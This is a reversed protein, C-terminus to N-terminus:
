FNFRGGIGVPLHMWFPAPVIEVYAAVDGFLSIPTNAIFYELGMTATAGLAITSSYIRNKTDNVYYRRLSLLGGLGYYWQLNQTNGLDKQWLFNGMMAIGTNGYYGSKYSRDRGYFSGYSGVNLDFANRNGFYKKVNLGSPDGLRLGVPGNKEKDM